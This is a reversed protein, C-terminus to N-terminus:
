RGEEQYLRKVERQQFPFLSVSLFVRLEPNRNKFDYGMGLTAFSASSIKVRYGIRGEIFDISESFHSKKVILESLVNFGHAAALDLGLRLEVEDELSAGASRYYFVNGHGKFPGVRKSVLIGGGFHGKSSLEDKGPISFGILYSISPGLRRESLITHKFGFSIDEFGESNHYDFVFPLSALLDIDDMLGYAANLHLRYFNPDVSRELSLMVGLRERGVTYASLTSFAGYPQVPMFGQTEFAAVTDMNTAATFLVISLALAIKKM